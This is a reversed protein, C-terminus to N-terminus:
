SYFRGNIEMKQFEEINVIEGKKAIFAINKVKKYKKFFFLLRIYM